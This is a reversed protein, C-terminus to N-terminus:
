RINDESFNVAVQFQQGGFSEFLLHNASNRVTLKDRKHQREIGEKGGMQQALQIRHKLEAIEPQWVM